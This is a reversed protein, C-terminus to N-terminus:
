SCKLPVRSAVQGLSEIIGMRRQENDGIYLLDIVM